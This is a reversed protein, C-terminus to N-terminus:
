KVVSENLAAYEKAYDPSRFNFVLRDAFGSFEISPTFIAQGVLLPVAIAGFMVAYGTWGDAFSPSFTFMVFLVSLTVAISAAFVLRGLWKGRRLAGKCGECVPVEQKWGKWLPERLPKWASTSSTCTLTAGPAAEGCEVCRDPFVPTQTKPTEVRHPM